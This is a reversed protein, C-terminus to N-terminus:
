IRRVRRRHRHSGEVPRGGPAAAVKAVRAHERMAQGPVLDGLDIGGDARDDVPADIEAIEDGTLRHTFVSADALDRGRWAAPGDFARMPIPPALPSESRALNGTM